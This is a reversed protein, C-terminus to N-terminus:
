KQPRDGTISKSISLRDAPDYHTEPQYREILLIQVVGDRVYGSTSHQWWPLYSSAWGAGHKLWPHWACGTLDLSWEVCQFARSTGLLM